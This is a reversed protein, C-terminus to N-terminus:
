SNGIPSPGICEDSKYGANPNAAFNSATALKASRAFGAAMRNLKLHDNVQRRQKPQTVIGCLQNPVARDGPLEGAFEATICRPPPENGIRDAAAKEIVATRRIARRARKALEDFRAIAGASERKAPLRRFMAVDIVRLRPVGAPLRRGLVAATKATSM